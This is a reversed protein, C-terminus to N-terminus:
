GVPADGVARELIAGFDRHRDYDELWGRLMEVMDEPLSIQERSVVELVCRFVPSYDGVGLDVFATNREEATLHDLVHEVLEWALTSERPRDTAKM